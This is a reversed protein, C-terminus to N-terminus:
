GVKEQIEQIFRRRLKRTVVTLMEYEKKTTTSKVVKEIDAIGELTRRVYDIGAPTITVLTVRRNDRDITRRILGEQELGDVLRTIQQKSRLLNRAMESHSQCGDGILILQILAEMKLWNISDKFVLGVMRNVVDSFFVLRPFTRALIEEKITEIGAKDPLDAIEKGEDM